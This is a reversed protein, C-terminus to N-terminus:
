IWKLIIQSLIQTSRCTELVRTKIARVFDSPPYVSQVEENHLKVEGGTNREAVSEGIYCFLAVAQELISAPQAKRWPPLGLEV